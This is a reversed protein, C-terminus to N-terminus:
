NKGDNYILAGVYRFENVNGIKQYKLILKVENDYKRSFKMLKKKLTNIKM